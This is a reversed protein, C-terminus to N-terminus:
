KQELQIRDGFTQEITQNISQRKFYNTAKILIINFSYLKSFIEFKNIFQFM